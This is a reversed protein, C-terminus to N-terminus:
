IVRRSGYVSDFDLIVHNFCRLTKGLYNAVKGVERIVLAEGEQGKIINKAEVM